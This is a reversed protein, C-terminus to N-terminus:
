CRLLCSVPRSVTGCFVGRAAIDQFFGQNGLIDFSHGLDKLKRVFTSRSIMEADHIAAWEQFLGFLAAAPVSGGPSSVIMERNFKTVPDSWKAPNRQMREASNRGEPSPWMSERAMNKLGLFESYLGEFARRMDPDMSREQAIGAMTLFAQKVVCATKDWAAPTQWDQRERRRRQREAATMAKDGLPKRGM